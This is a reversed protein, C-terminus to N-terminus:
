VRDRLADLPFRDVEGLLEVLCHAAHDVLAAGRAADADRADGCVGFLNLDQSQWGFSIKGEPTLYKFEQAMEISLSDFNRREAQRVLEPHLHLMMSTEIAGGHIGHEVESPPFLGEPLGASFWNCTVVFMKLRVRLDRAVIDMIQPQGGHSNFLVLKRIGARFVSEGLETWVRILTEASLSLTGPFAQHENSKGVPMMPLVLVSLDDPILPVAQSVIGCNIASDAWVPLHPGHQEVAGVPLVAITREADIGAFDKTTLDKWYRSRSATM